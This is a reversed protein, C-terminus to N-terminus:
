KIEARKAPWLRFIHQQLTFRGTAPAAALKRVVARQTVLAVDLVSGVVIVDVRVVVGV